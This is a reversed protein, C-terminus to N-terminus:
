NSVGGLYKYLEEIVKRTEISMGGTSIKKDIETVISNFVEYFDRKDNLKAAVLETAFNNLSLSNVSWGPCTSFFLDIGEITSLQNALPLAKEQWVKGMEEAVEFLEKDTSFEYSYGSIQAWTLPKETTNSEDMIFEGNAKDYTIGREYKQLVARINSREVLEGMPISISRFDFSEINQTYPLSAKILEIDNNWIELLFQVKYNLPAYDYFLFYFFESDKGHKRKFSFNSKIFKYGALEINRGVTEHLYTKVDSMLLEKGNMNTFIEGKIFKTRKRTKFVQHQQSM